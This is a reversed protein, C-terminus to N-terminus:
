DKFSECVRALNKSSKVRFAVERGVRLGSLRRFGYAAAWQPEPVTKRHCLSAVFQWGKSTM